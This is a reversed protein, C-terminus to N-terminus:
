HRFRGGVRHDAQAAHTVVIQFIKIEVQREVLEDDDRAQATRALAREGKVREEGLALAAVDLGKRGVGPLEEVAHVLRLHVADFADRGGDGDLLAVGDLGGAGGDARHGFDAIVQFNQPRVERLQMAFLASLAHPLIRRLLDPCVEKRGREGGRGRFLLFSFGLVLVLVFSSSSSLSALDEDREVKREGFFKRQLFREGQNGLLAILPNQPVTFNDPQFFDPSFRFASLPFRFDGNDLVADFEGGGVARAKDFRALLRIMEALALQRNVFEGFVNGVRFEFNSVRFNEGVAAVAGGTVEFIAFRRGRQEAEIMRQTRTRGAFTKATGDRNIVVQRNGVARERQGFARDLRPAAPEASFTLGVQRLKALFPAHRHVHRERFKGGLVLAPHQFPVCIVALVGIVLPRTKPITHFAVELPEFGLGVLHM